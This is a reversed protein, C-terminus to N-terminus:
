LSERPGAAFRAEDALRLREFTILMILILFFGLAIFLPSSDRLMARWDSDATLFLAASCPLLWTIAFVYLCGLTRGARALTAGLRLLLFSGGGVWFVLDRTFLRGETAREVGYAVATLFIAVMLDVLWAPVSRM